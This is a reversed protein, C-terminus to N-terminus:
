QLNQKLLQAALCAVRFPVDCYSVMHTTSDYLPAIGSCLTLAREMLLPPRCIAPICLERKQANYNLIRHRSRRLVIYKGIQGPVKFASGRHCLYYDSQFRFTFRYLATANSRAEQPTSAKWGLKAPDFRETKWDRGSPLEAGIWAPKFDITPVSLLLALPAHPQFLLGLDAAIQELPASTAAFVRIVDPSAVGSLTPLSLGLMRNQFNTLLNLSRAGCLIGMWGNAQQVAALVPPAVQWDTESGHSNFEAHGLRQLNFRLEQYIPFEGTDERDRLVGTGNDTAELHLEEIAGKFQAWSGERRASMWILLENAKVPLGELDNKSDLPIRAM